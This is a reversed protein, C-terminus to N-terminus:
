ADGGMPVDSNLAPVPAAPDKAARMTGLVFAVFPDAMDPRFQDFATDLRDFLGELRDADIAKAREETAMRQWSRLLNLAETWAAQLREAHAPACEAAVADITSQMRTVTNNETM